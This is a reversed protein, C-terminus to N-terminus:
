NLLAHVYYVITIIAAVSGAILSITKLLSKKIPQIENLSRSSFTVNTSQLGTNIGFNLNSNSIEMYKNMEKEEVQELYKEISGAKVAKWGKETLMDITQGEDTPIMYGQQRLIIRVQGPELWEYDKFLDSNDWTDSSTMGNKDAYWGLMKNAIKLQRDTM